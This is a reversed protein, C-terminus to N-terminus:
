QIPLFDTFNLYFEHGERASSHINNIEHLYKNCCDIVLRMFRQKQDERHYVEEFFYRFNM